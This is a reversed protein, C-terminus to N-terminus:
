KWLCTTTIGPFGRGKPWYYIFGVNFTVAMSKLLLNFSQLFRYNHDSHSSSLTLCILGTPSGAAPILPTTGMNIVMQSLQHPTHVTQWKFLYLVFVKFQRHCLLTTNLWLLFTRTQNGTWSPDKQTIGRDALRQINVKHYATSRDPTCRRKGLTLQSHSWSGDWGKFLILLSSLPHFSKFIYIESWSWRTSGLILLLHYLSMLLLEPNQM